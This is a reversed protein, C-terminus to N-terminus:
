KRIEKVLDLLKKRWQDTGHPKDLEEGYDGRTDPAVPTTADIIMKTVMGGPSCAPDLLNEALNPITVIDGAPNVKVSIAWMVQKLDFPDVDEDVVIIVKAYGLGHTTTLVRLGVSKAFGGYRIKTSVVVVLGHTYLANVAVIEPFTQKLQLYIPASTTMAQLFDLETWPRGVYVADYIPDKRHSLRDIEIVPYKHCGSYYGPFEGFPGEPERQGALVRGELVYESGWPVDLGAATKVVRYPAGQMVAAMKYELQDYLLPTAGMLTILPENGLAIAVPLDEGRQEAHALHIAIDHQPVPQIGLRNRGKVQLRYIGVNEVNDNDWDDPDRSIICAKDLFYGGDGRNLRFLPLLEYLNLDKDVVQEQWPASAVRELAGPYLQFRRVFEFFQDRMSADKEMDLALAHNCWSGHVNLAVRASSYGAINDLYIAPSEEGVETLACAAAALDPEPMVQDHIRLLQREQELVSLFERLDKYARM